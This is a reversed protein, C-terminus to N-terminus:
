KRQEEYVNCHNHIHMIYAFICYAITEAIPGIPIPQNTILLWDCRGQDM